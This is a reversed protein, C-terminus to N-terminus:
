VRYLCKSYTFDNYLINQVNRTEFLKYTVIETDYYLRSLNYWSLIKLFVVFNNFLLLQYNINFRCVIIKM